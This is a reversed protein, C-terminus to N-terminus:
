GEFHGGDEMRRHLEHIHRLAAKKDQLAMETILANVVMSIAAISNTFLLNESKVCLYHASHETIPATHTDTIGAVKMGHKRAQRAVELTRASYPPFSLCVLVDSEDIFSLQEEFSLEADAIVSAPQAVQNLSYAMIRAMLSSIGLGFTYITHAERLMSVIAGFQERSLQEITQNINQVDQLAVEHITQGNKQPLLEFRQIDSYRQQVAAQLANRFSIFGEFGLRQAFRVVTAKSVGSREGIEVVSLFAAEQMSRVLFDAVAKQNKPLSEYEASIRRKLRETSEPHHGGSGSNPSNSM